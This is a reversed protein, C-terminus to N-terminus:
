VIRNTAEAFAFARSPYTAAPQEVFRSLPERQVIVGPGESEFVNAGNEAEFRVPDAPEEATPLIAPAGAPIGSGRDRPNAQSDDASSMGYTGACRSEGRSLWSIVRAALNELPSTAFTWM